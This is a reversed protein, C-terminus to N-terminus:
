KPVLPDFDPYFGGLGSYIIEVVHICVYAFVCVQFASFLLKGMLYNTFKPSFLFNHFETNTREKEKKRGKKRGEQSQSTM